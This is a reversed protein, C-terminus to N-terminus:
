RKVEGNTQAITGGSKYYTFISISKRICIDYLTHMCSLPLFVVHICVAVELGLFSEFFGDGSALLDRDILRVVHEALGGGGFAGDAHFTRVVRLGM